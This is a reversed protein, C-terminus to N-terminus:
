ASILAKNIVLVVGNQAHEVRRVKQFEHDTSSAVYFEGKSKKLMIDGSNEDGEFEFSRLVLSDHMCDKMARAKNISAGTAIHSKVFHMINNNVAQDITADDSSKAELAEIDTPFQWPKLPLSEVARDSPAFVIINEFPDGMIKSITLDDRLYSSFISIENLSPLRSDLCIPNIVEKPSGGEESGQFVKQKAPDEEKTLQKDEFLDYINLPQVTRASRVKLFGDDMGASYGTSPLQRKFKGSEIDFLIDLQAVNKADVVFASLGIIWCFASFSSKLGSLRM